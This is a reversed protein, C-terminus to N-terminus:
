RMQYNYAYGSSRYIDEYDGVNVVYFRFQGYINSYSPMTVAVEYGDSITTPEALSYGFNNNPIYIYALDSESDLDFRLTIEEETDFELLEDVETLSVSFTSDDNSSSIYRLDQLFAQGGGASITAGSISILTWGRRTSGARGWRQCIARRTGTIVFEKVYRELSDAESNYVLNYFNGYFKITYNAYAQDVLGVPSEVQNTSYTIPLREVTSDVVHWYLPQDAIPDDIYALTDPTADTFPSVGSLRVNDVMVVNLIAEEDTSEYYSVPNDDECNLAFISLMIILITIWRM